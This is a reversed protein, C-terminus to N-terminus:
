DWLHLYYKGFMELGLEVRETQQQLNLDKVSKFSFIMCEICNLWKTKLLEIEEDTYEIKECDSMWSPIAVGDESFKTKYNELRPIMFEAISDKLFYWNEKEDPNM